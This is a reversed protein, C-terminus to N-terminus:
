LGHSGLSDSKISCLTYCATVILTKRPYDLYIIWFRLQLCNLSLGYDQYVELNTSLGQIWLSDM